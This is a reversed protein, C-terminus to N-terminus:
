QKQIFELIAETTKDRKKGISTIITIHTRRPVRLLQVTNGKERLAEAFRNAMLRAGPFDASAYILLFPPLNESVNDIPSADKWKEKDNGFAGFLNSAIRYVGSVPIVGTIDEVSLGHKKLFRQNTALLAALHGGASHGCVFIRENDGGYEAIKKHVWAFAAAVDEIHSPHVVDPSLRYNIVAVGVGQRAFAKGLYGYGFLFQDKDGMRWAGGHIFLMVKFRRLEKPLFLDLRHKKEDADKGEYYPIDKKVLVEYPKGTDFLYDALMKDLKFLSEEATEDGKLYRNFFATAYHNIVRVQEKAAEPRDRNPRDKYVRQCFTMHTGRKIELLFKPPAAERYLTRTLEEVDNIGLRKRQEKELEGFMFMVPTKLLKFEKEDWMFLGGSMYLGAKIREDKHEPILGSLALTTFSGLSHGVVGVSEEDILGAFPSDEDRSLALVSDIVARLEKLRYLHKKRDFNKGSRALELANRAVELPRVKVGGRIRVAKDKDNHDPAAVVFGARALHETLYITSVGGGSYGHSYVLLPYPSGRRSPASDVAVRGKAFGGGYEYEKEKADTPYWVATTVTREKGEADKYKFDYIRFGVSYNKDTKKPDKPDGEDAGQALLLITSSCLVLLLLFRNRM